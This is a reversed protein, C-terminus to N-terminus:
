ADTGKAARDIFLSGGAIIREGAKVGSLAEILNGNQRGLQVTRAEILGDKRAIFVHASDGEYVVADVPVAPNDGLQGSLVTFSALMQPKLAGDPNAIEARVALRHTSPDVVPAVFTLRATFVRGPWAPVKVQVTQGVSVKEADAERLNGVLWVRSLDAIRFVPTTAGASASQIFQGPGVNRQVVTGAIPAVVAAGPAFRTPNRADELAAVEAPSKGLIALRNRVAGLGVQASRTTSRAALLAAQAQQWDKLAGAKALYLQHARDEDRVAQAEAATATALAAKAAILDGVGQTLESAEVTLLPQGARVTDGLRASVGLVRGSYPSFIDVSANDDTAIIGDTMEETQFGRDGITAVTLSQWQTATPRFTGPPGPPAAMRAAGPEQSCAAMALSIAAGLLLSVARHLSIRSVM